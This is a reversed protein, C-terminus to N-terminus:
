FFLKLHSSADHALSLAIMVIAIFLLLAAYHIVRLKLIRFPSKKQDLLVLSFALLLMFFVPSTPLDASTPGNLYHHIAYAMYISSLLIILGLGIVELGRYNIDFLSHNRKTLNKM